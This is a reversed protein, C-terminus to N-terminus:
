GLVMALVKIGLQLRAEDIKALQLAMEADHLEQKADILFNYEKDHALMAQFEREAENKGVITGTSIDHSKLFDYRQQYESAKFRAQFYVATATSLEQYVDIIAQQLETQTYQDLTKVQDSM